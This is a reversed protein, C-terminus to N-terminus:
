PLNSDMLYGSITSWGAGDGGLTNPVDVSVTTGADAYIRVLRDVFWYHAYAGGGVPSLDLIFRHAAFIGNVTTQVSFAMAQGQTLGVQCSIQEIVLRKGTPVTFSGGGGSYTPDNTWDVKQQFPQQVEKEVNKVPVPNATSNAVTISNDASKVIVPNDASNTVTVSNDVNKVMVPNSVPNTVIVPQASPAAFSQVSFFVFLFGAAAFKEIKNKM